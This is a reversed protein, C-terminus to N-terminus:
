FAFKGFGSFKKNGLVFGLQLCGATAVTFFIENVCASVVPLYSQSLCNM